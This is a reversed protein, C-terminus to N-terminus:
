RRPCSCAPFAGSRAWFALSLLVVVPDINLGRGQMRPLLINGVLMTLIQLGVFLVGAEWHTSFQVLAFVAPAIIGIAAGVIPIYGLVFIVFSWFFASELGVAIMMAWSGIAIIAGCVTQIWLYREISDRVRLFLATAEHRRDRLPFLRVTKRDFGRRSAMLFGLYILVFVANSVVDQLMGAVAPLFSAPNLKAVLQDVNHPLGIHLRKALHGMLLNLRPTYGLLRDVFAGGNVVVVFVGGAVALICIVLAAGLAAGEGLAPIRGRLGRALGDILVLLFVSLALPTLIPAMWMLAAGSAIVALVVLANRSTQPTAAPLPTM